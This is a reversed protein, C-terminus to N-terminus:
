NKLLDRLKTALNYIEFPKSILEVVGDASQINKVHNAPYGSTFLIPTNINQARIVKAIDPGTMGGPLFVDSFILDFPPHTHIIILASKGDIATTTQYGLKHLQAETTAAVEPDDEIILIHEGQGNFNELVRTDSTEIPHESPTAPLSLCISTGHGLESEIVMQGGSQNIFGYVMSLGLGSGRGVEKTTYFPEVVHELVDKDIGFGNDKVEIVIFHQHPHQHTPGPITEPALTNKTSIILKGGDIMADRANIALNLLASELQTRDIEAPNLNTDLRTIIEIQAGLTRRLLETMGRILKNIDTIEAQLSQRRGFALLRQTLDAGRRCAGLATHLLQNETASQTTNELLSLSGLVIALLNNFDHAVGGTLQGIAEMKQSQVLLEQSHKRDSIDSAAVFFGVVTGDKSIDPTYIVEITRYQSFQDTLNNDFFPFDSEFRVAEGKLAKQIYPEIHSYSAGTMVQKLTKGVVADPKVGFWTTLTLNNLRYCQDQDIYAIWLPITDIIQQLEAERHKIESIDTAVSVTIGDPSRNNRILTWRGDQNTEYASPPNQHHALHENYIDDIEADSQGKQQQTIAHRLFTEYTTGRVLIRASAGAQSRYIRNCLIFHDDRDWFSIGDSVSEIADLFRHTTEVAEQRARVEDTINRGTGRYGLFLGQENFLPKGSLRYWKKSGDDHIEGYTFDQFPRRDRLIELHAFYETQGTEGANLIESQSLGLLDEPGRGSIDYYRESAYTYHLDSDMEWLWDSAAEAFDTFRQESLQLAYYSDTLNKHMDNIANVVSDLEDISLSPKKSRKLTLPSQQVGANLTRTYGAIRNLHDSILKRFVYPTFAVLSLAVSLGIVLVLWFQQRMITLSHQLSINLEIIRSPRSNPILYQFQISNHTTAFWPIRSAQKTRLTGMIIRVNSINRHNELTVVAQQANSALILAKVTEGTQQELNKIENLYSFYLGASTTISIVSVCFFLIVLSLRLGMIQKQEPKATKETTLPDNM